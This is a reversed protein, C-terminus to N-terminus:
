KRRTAHGDLDTKIIRFYGMRGGQFGVWAQGEHPGRSVNAFISTMIMGAQCPFAISRDVRGSRANVLQLQLMSVPCHRSSRYVGLLMHTTTHYWMPVEVVGELILPGTNDLRGVQRLNIPLSEKAGKWEGVAGNESHVLSIPCPAPNAASPVPVSPSDATTAPAVAECLMMRGDPQRQGKIPIPVHFADYYYSGEVLWQREEGHNIYDFTQLSVHVPEAGITGVYSRVEYWGSHASSMWFLMALPLALYNNKM